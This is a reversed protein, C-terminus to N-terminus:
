LGQPDTFQRELLAIQKNTYRIGYWNLLWRPFRPEIPTRKKLIFLIIFAFFGLFYVYLAWRIMSRGFAWAIPITLFVLVFRM